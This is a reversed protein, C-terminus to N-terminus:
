ATGGTTEWGVPQVTYRHEKAGVNAVEVVLSTEFKRAPLFTVQLDDIDTPPVSAPGYVVEGDAKVRYETGPEKSVALIPLVFTTSNQQPTFELQALEDPGLTVTAPENFPLDGDAPQPFVTM